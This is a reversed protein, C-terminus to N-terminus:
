RLGTGTVVVESTARGRVQSASRVEARLTYHGASLNKFVFTHMRKEDKGSLGLESSRFLDAGDAEILLRRNDADPEVDVVIRVTAPESFYKGHLVIGVVERAHGPIAGAAFLLTLFAISAITRRIM